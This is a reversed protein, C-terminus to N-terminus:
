SWINFYIAVCVGQSNRWYSYHSFGLLVAKELREGAISLSKLMNEFGKVYIGLTYGM